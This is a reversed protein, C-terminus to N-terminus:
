KGEGQETMQRRVRIGGDRRDQQMILNRLQERVKDDYLAYTLAFGYSEEWTLGPFKNMIFAKQKKINTDLAKIKADIQEPTLPTM